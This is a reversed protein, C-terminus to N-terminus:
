NCARFVDFQHRCDNLWCTTVSKHLSGFVLLRVAVEIYINHRIRKNTICNEVLEKLGNTAVLTLSLDEFDNENCLSKMDTDKAATSSTFCGNSCM